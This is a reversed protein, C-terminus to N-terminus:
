ASKRLGSSRLAISCRRANVRRFPFRYWHAKGSRLQNQKWVELGRRLYEPDIELTHCVEEFAFPWSIGDTSHFWEEVERFLRGSRGTDHHLHRQFTAVAEELLALM